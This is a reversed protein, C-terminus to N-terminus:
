SDRLRIRERQSEKVPQGALLVLHARIIVLQSHPAFSVKLTHTHTFLPTPRPSVHRKAGLLLKFGDKNKNITQDHSM